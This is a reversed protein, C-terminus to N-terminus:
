FVTSVPFSEAPPVQPHFRAIRGAADAGAAQMFAASHHELTALAWLAQSLTAPSLAHVGTALRRGVDALLRPSPRHGM